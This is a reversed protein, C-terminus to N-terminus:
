YVEIATAQYIAQYGTGDTWDGYAPFMYEQMGNSDYFFGGANGPFFALTNNQWSYNTLYFWNHVYNTFYGVGSGSLCLMDYSGCFSGCSEAGNGELDPDTPVGYGNNSDNDYIWIDDGDCYTQTDQTLAAQATGVREANSPASVKPQSSSHLMKQELRLALEKGTLTAYTVVSKSPDPDLRVAAVQIQSKSLLGTPPGAPAPPATQVSCGIALCSLAALAATTKM